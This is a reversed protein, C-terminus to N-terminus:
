EYRLADVIKLKSTLRAPYIGSLLSIALTLSIAIVVGQLPFIFPLYFGFTTIATLFIWTLLLADVFGLLLGGLGLILSEGLVARLAESKDMGLAKLIGIERRREMISMFMTTSLGLLAIVISVILLMQFLLILEGSAVAFSQTVFQSTLIDLNQAPGIQGSNKINDAVDNPKEGESVKVLILGDTNARFPIPGVANPLNLLDCMAGFSIISAIDLALDGYQIFGSGYFQAIVTFNARISSYLLVTVNDGISVGLTSALKTSLVISHNDESLRNMVYTLNTPGPPKLEISSVSPFTDTEVGVIATVNYGKVTSAALGISTFYFECFSYRSVGSISNLSVLDTVNVSSAPRIMVDTGLQHYLFDSLGYTLSGQMSGVFIVFTLGISVVGITLSTRRRNRGLNRVTVVYNNKMLPRAPAGLIRVLQRTVGFLTFLSGIIILFVAGIEVIWTTATLSGYVGSSIFGVGLLLLVVQAGREHAARGRPRMARVPPTFSAVFAPYLSGIIAILMGISFSMIITQLSIVLTSPPYGTFYSVINTMTTSIAVGVVLGISSGIAGHIMGEFVFIKFLSSRRAGVARLVGMEKKRENAAMSLSNTSLIIASMLSIAAVANLALGFANVLSITDSILAEKPAAVEIGEYSTFSQLLADRVQLTSGIDPLKVVITTIEAPTAYLWKIRSINALIAGTFGKGEIHVISSVILDIHRNTGNALVVGLRIDFGKKIGLASAADDTVICNTGNRLSALSSNSFGIHDEFSPDVGVVSAGNLPVDAGSVICEGSYRPAVSGQEAIIIPNNAVINFLSDNFPEATVKSISLDVDGGVTRVTAVVQSSISQRAISSSVVMAVSLAVAVIILSNRLKRRSFHRKALWASLFKASM